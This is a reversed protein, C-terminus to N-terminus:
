LNKKIFQKGDRRGKLMQILKEIKQEEFLLTKLYFFRYSNRLSKYDIVDKHEHMYILWNRVMYPVGSIEIRSM